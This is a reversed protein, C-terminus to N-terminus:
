KFIILYIDYKETIKNKSNITMIFGLKCYDEGQFVALALETGNIVIKVGVHLIRDLILLM